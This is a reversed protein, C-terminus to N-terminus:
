VRELSRRRERKAWEARFGARLLSLLAAALKDTMHAFDFRAIVLLRLRTENVSLECAARRMFPYRIVILQRLGRETGM